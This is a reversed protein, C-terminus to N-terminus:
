KPMVVVIAVFVVVHDFSHVVVVVIGPV